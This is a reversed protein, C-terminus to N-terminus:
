RDGIKEEGFKQEPSAMLRRKTTPTVRTKPHQSHHLGRKWPSKSLGMCACARVEPGQEKRRGQIGLLVGDPRESEM